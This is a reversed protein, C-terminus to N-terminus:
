FGEPMSIPGVAERYRAIAYRDTMGAIFDAIHRGRAPDTAPLRDRWGAHLLAANGRYADVLGGIIATARGAIELQVPHHYFRAYMFTKLSREQAAMGPSFGVM